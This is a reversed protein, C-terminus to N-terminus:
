GQVTSRIQQSIGVTATAPIQSIVMFKENSVFDQVNRASSMAIACEKDLCFREGKVLLVNPSIVPVLPIQWETAAAVQHDLVSLV